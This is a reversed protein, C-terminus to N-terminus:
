YIWFRVIKSLLYGDGDKARIIWWKDRKLKHAVFDLTASTVEPHQVKIRGYVDIEPAKLADRIAKDLSHIEAENAAIQVAEVQKSAAIWAAEVVSPRPYRALKIKAM